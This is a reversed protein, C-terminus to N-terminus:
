SFVLYTKLRNESIDSNLIDNIIIKDGAIYTQKENFCIRVSCFQTSFKISDITNCGNTSFCTLTNCHKCRIIPFEKFIDYNGCRVCKNTNIFLNIM